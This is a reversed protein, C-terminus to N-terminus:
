LNDVYKQYQHYLERIEDISLEDLNDPFNPRVVTAHVAESQNKLPIMRKALLFDLLMYHPDCSSPLPEFDVPRDLLNNFKKIDNFKNYSDRSALIDNGASSTRFYLDPLSPLERYHTYIDGIVYEFDRCAKINNIVPIYVDPRLEIVQDYVVGTKIEQRRKLINGIKSLHARLYYMDEYQTKPTVLKYNILKRGNFTDLLDDLSVAKQTQEKVKLNKQYDATTTWSVFYYDVNNSYSEVFRFIHKSALDWTRYDGCILVALNTLM